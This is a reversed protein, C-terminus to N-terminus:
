LRFTLGFYPYFDVEAEIDFASGAHLMLNDNIKYYLGANTLGSWQDFEESYVTYFEAFAGLPGCLPRKLSIGNEVVARIDKRGDEYFEVGTVLGLTFECPLKASFPISVGGTYDEYGATHQTTPLTAYPLIALATTGEDNGWINIKTGVAMNGFGSVTQRTGPASGIRTETTFQAYPSLNVQLDARSCLGARIAMNGFSWGRTRVEGGPINQNDHTYAVLDTELQVHGADVTYPTITYMLQDTNLERLHADPTPNWLYFQDKEAANAGLALGASILGLTLIQINKM